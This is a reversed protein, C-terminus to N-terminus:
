KTNAIRDSFLMQVREARHPEDSAVIALAQRLGDLDPNPGPPGSRHLRDMDAALSLVRWRMELFQQGLLRDFDTMVTLRLM